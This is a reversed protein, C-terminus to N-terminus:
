ADLIADPVHGAPYPTLMTMAYSCDAFELLYAYVMKIEEVNLSRDYVGAYLRSSLKQSFTIFAKSNNPIAM